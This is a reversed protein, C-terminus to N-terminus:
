RRALITRVSAVSYRAFLYQGLALAERFRIPREAAGVIESGHVNREQMATIERRLILVPRWAHDDNAVASSALAECTLIGNAPLQHAPQILPGEFRHSDHAHDAIHPLARGAGRRLRCQIHGHLLVRIM